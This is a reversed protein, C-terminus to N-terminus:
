GSSHSCDAEMGAYQPMDNFVGYPSLRIGVKDKGIAKIAADVVELPFRARNEITGGYGNTRQNSTPRIFQELLYGNAAHLEIDDFGETVANTAALANVTCVDKRRQRNFIVTVHHSKKVFYIEVPVRCVTISQRVRCSASHQVVPVHTIFDSAICFLWMM